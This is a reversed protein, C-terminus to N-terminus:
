YGILRWRRVMLGCLRPISYQDSTLSLCHDLKRPSRFPLPPPPLTRRTKEDRGHAAPERGGRAQPHEGGRRARGGQRLGSSSLSLSNVGGSLAGASLGKVRGQGRSLSWGPHMCVQSRTSTHIGEEGAEDAAATTATWASQARDQESEKLKAEQVPPTLQIRFLEFGNSVIRFLEFCNSVIRLAGAHPAHRAAEQV